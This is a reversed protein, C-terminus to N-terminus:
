LALCADACLWFLSQRIAARSQWARQDWVSGSADDGGYLVQGFPVGRCQAVAMMGAAEMEVALCGEAQRQTITRATERCPADTTWTKGLRYSLGRQRITDVLAKVGTEAAM